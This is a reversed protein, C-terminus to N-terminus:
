KKPPAVNEVFSGVLNGAPRYNAVVIVKGGSTKAKGIGMEKSGKWVMQTFHGSRLTRPESSFDHKSIESYWQECAERRAVLVQTILGQHHGNAAFIKVLEKGRLCVHQFANKAALNEVWKQAYDSLDKAHKLKSAGHKARLENHVKVADDIFEKINQPKKKKSKEDDSSSSSSSSSSDKRKHKSKSDKSGKTDDLSPKGFDDTGKTDDLSPKGFDDTGKRYKRYKQLSFMKGLSALRRYSAVVITKSDKALAKGVEFENSGKWVVKTFHWLSVLSSHRKFVKFVVM